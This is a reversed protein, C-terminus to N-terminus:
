AKEKKAFFRDLWVVVPTAVYISSYTGVIVGIVLAFSFDRLSTKWGIFYLALV